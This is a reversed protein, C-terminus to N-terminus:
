LLSSKESEETLRRMEMEEAIQEQQKLLHCKKYKIGSGCHCPANRGIKESNKLQRPNFKKPEVKPPDNTASVTEEDITLEEEYDTANKDKAEKTPETSNM